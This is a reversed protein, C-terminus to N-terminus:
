PHGDDPLCTGGEGNFTTTPRLRRADILDVGNSPLAGVRQGVM